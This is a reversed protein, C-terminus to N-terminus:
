NLDDEDDNNARSPKAIEKVFEAIEEDIDEPKRLKRPAEEVDELDRPRKTTLPPATEVHVEHPKHKTTLPADEILEDDDEKTRPEVTEIDEDETDDVIIRKGYKLARSTEVDSITNELAEITEKTNESPEFGVEDMDLELAKITDNLSDRVRFDTFTAHELAVRVSSLDFKDQSLFTTM